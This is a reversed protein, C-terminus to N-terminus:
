SVSIQKRVTSSDLLGPDLHKAPKTEGSAETRSKYITGEEQARVHVKETCPCHQPKETDQLSVQKIPDPGM